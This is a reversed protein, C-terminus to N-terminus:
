KHCGDVACFKGKQLAAKDQGGKKEVGADKHCYMCNVKKGELGSKGSHKKNIDTSALLVSGVFLSAVAMGVIMKKM